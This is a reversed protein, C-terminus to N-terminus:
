LTVRTVSATVPGGVGCRGERPAAQLWDSLRGVAGSGGVPPRRLTTCDRVGRDTASLSQVLRGNMARLDLRSIM